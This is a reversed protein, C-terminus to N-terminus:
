PNVKMGTNECQYHIEIGIRRSSIMTCHCSSSPTRLSSSAESTSDQYYTHFPRPESRVITLSKPCVCPVLTEVSIRIDADTATQATTV